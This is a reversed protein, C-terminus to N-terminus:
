LGRLEKDQMNCHMFEM